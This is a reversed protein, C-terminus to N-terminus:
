SFSLLVWFCPFSIQFILSFLLLVL